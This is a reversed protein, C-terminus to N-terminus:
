MRRSLHHMGTLVRSAGGEGRVTQPHTFADNDTRLEEELTFFFEKDFPHGVPGECRIRLSKLIARLFLHGPIHSDDTLSTGIEDPDIRCRRSPEKIETVLVPKANKEANGPHLM